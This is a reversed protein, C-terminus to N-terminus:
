LIVTERGFYSNMVDKRGHGLEAFIKLRVKSNIVSQIETLENVSPGGAVPSKFGALNEFRAQAYGHRLGHLKRLGLSRTGEKYTSLWAKYTKDPPIM